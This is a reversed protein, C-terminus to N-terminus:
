GPKCGHTLIQAQVAEACLAQRRGGGGPAQFLLSKVLSLVWGKLVWVDIEPPCHEAKRFFLVAPDKEKYHLPRM